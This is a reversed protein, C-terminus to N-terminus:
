NLISAHLLQLAHEGEDLDADFRYDSFERVVTEVGTGTIEMQYLAQVLVLRAVTRARKGKATLGSSQPAAKEQATLHDMVAKLSNPAPTTDEPEAM